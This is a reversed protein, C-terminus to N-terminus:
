SSSLDPEAWAAFGLADKYSLSGTSDDALYRRVRRSFRIRYKIGEVMVAGLDTRDDVKRDAPLEVVHWGASRTLHVWVEFARDADMSRYTVGGVRAFIQVPDM